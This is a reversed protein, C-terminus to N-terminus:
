TQPLSPMAPPSGNVLIETVDSKHEFGPGADEESVRGKGAGLWVPQEEQTRNRCQCNM